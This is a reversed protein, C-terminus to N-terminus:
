TPSQPLLADDTARARMASPRSGLSEMYRTFTPHREITGFMVGFTLQSCLYPDAATFSEGDPFTRDALAGDVVDLVNALSGYGTM